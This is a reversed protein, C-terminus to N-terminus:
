VAHYFWSNATICTGFMLRREVIDFLATLGQRNALGTPLM